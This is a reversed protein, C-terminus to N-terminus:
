SANKCTFNVHDEFKLESDLSIGFLTGKQISTIM